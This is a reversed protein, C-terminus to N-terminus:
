SFRIIFTDWASAANRNALVQGGGGGEAVVYQYNNARLTIKDGNTIQSGGSGGVKQIVFKEWSSPTNRNALVEKGGGGEAVVFRGNHVIFSVQDGSAIDNSSTNSMNIVQLTEWSSAADRNALVEQGGGGEAVLYQGNNAQLYIPRTKWILNFRV